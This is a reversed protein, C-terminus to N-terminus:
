SVYQRLQSDQQSVHILLIHSLNSPFQVYPHISPKLPSRQLKVPKVINIYLLPITRNTTFMYSRNRITVLSFLEKDSHNVRRAVKDLHMLKLQMTDVKVESSRAAYEKVDRLAQAVVDMNIGKKLNEIEAM